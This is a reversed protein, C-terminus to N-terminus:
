ATSVLPKAYILAHLGPAYYNEETGQLLYGHERYLHIASANSEAVHLGITSAGAASASTEIRRLLETAIGRRRHAPSVELTQIYASTQLAETTWDVIAFGFMQQDQEAIWSASNPSSVLQQMYRRPFRIPPRFCIREIAYLQVFDEPRYLRYHM